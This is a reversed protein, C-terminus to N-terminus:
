TSETRHTTAVHVNVLNIELRRWLLIDRVELKSNFVQVMGKVKEVTPPPEKELQVCLEDM